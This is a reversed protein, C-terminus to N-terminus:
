VAYLSSAMQISVVFSLESLQQLRGTPIRATVICDNDPGAIKNLREAGCELGQLALWDTCKILVDFYAPNKRLEWQIRPDIKFTTMIESATIESKQAVQL